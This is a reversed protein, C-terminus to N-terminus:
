LSKREAYNWGQVIDGAHSGDAKQEKYAIKMSAFNLTFEEFPIVDTGGHALINHASVFVDTLDIKLYVEQGGKGTARRCSLTATKKHDGEACALFLNPTDKGVVKRFHVDGAVTKGRAAGGGIGSSGEHQQGWSYSLVEIEGKHKSDISEGDIGDIKLFYDVAAM